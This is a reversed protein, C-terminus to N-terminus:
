HTIAVSMQRIGTNCRGIPTDVRVEARDAEGVNKLQLVM